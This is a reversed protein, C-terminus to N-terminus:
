QGSLIAIFPSIDLFNVVGNEDCDAECQFTGGSLVAIFPAIDLFDVTGNADVDGLLCNTASIAVGSRGDILSFGFAIQGRENLGSREGWGPNLRDATLLTLNSVTSGLLSDGVRIVETLGSENEDFFYIAARIGGFGMNVDSRFAVQGSDNFTPTSINTFTGGGDPTVDGALVVKTMTGLGDGIFIGNGGLGDAIGSSLAVQGFNNVAFTDFSSFRGQGGPVPRGSRAIQLPENVGDSLFLGRRDLSGATNMLEASFAVQGVENVDAPSFNSFEGNGDPVREGRRAIEVPATTGSGRYLGINDSAGGLTNSLNAKFVVQGANNLQIDQFNSFIGNGGPATENNLAIDEFENAGDVVIVGRRFTLFNASYSFAVEGADNLALDSLLTFPGLGNPSEFGPRAIETLFANDGALFIGDFTSGATLRNYFAVQGSNNLYPEFFFGFRADGLPVLQRERALQLLNGNLDGRFVAVDSDIGLDTDTLTAIFAVKGSDNIAPAHFTEFRGDGNPVSQGSTVVVTPTFQAHSTSLAAPAITFFVAIAFFNRSRPLHHIRVM